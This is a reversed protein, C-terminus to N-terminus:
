KKVLGVGLQEWQLVMPLEPYLIPDHGEIPPEDTCPRRNTVQRKQPRAASTPNSLPLHAAAGVQNFFAVDYINFLFETLTIAAKGMWPPAITTASSVAWRLWGGSPWDEHEKGAASPPAFWPSFM